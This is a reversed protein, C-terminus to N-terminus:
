SWCVLTRGLLGRLRENEARLADREQEARGARRAWNSLETTAEDRERELEAVRALADRLADLAMAYDTPPEPKKTKM